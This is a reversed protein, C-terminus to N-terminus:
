RPVLAVRFGLLSLRIGAHNQMVPVFRCDKSDSVWCGGWNSVDSCWEWVNGSMDYLGLENAKKLGVPHTGGNSNLGYWAVDDPDDSGSCRYGESKRGGRAAYEWQIETPLTFEWGDPAKGMVNLKECFDMADKWSVMEVPLDTGEFYSPDTGMVAKWQAQTVETKALYFDQTSIIEDTNMVITGADVRVMEFSNGGPITVTIEASGDSIDVPKFCELAEKAGAHGREAAKHYWEVAKTFDAEVGDGFEYRIALKYKAEAGGLTAGVVLRNAWLVILPIVLVVTGVLIFTKRMKKRRLFIEYQRATIQDLINKQKPTGALRANSFLPDESLPKRCNALHMADTVGYAEMCKRLFEDSQAAEIQKLQEKREPSAYQLAFMFHEEESLPVSCAPLEAESAVHCSEMCEKLFFEAQDEQLKRLDKKRKPSACKMALKFNDDEALPWGTQILGAEGFVEKADMCKGLFYDSQKESIDRLEAQQEQPAARLAMRFLMSKSLPIPLAALEEVSYKKKLEDLFLDTQERQIQLLEKRGEPPAAQLAARFNEDDALPTKSTSLFRIDSIGNAIACKRLFFKIRAKQQIDELEKRREEPVIKLMAQFDNNKTLDAGQEALQSLDTIRFVDLCKKTHFRIQAEQQIDELEKRREEPALKMAMQFNKDNSLDQGSQMLADENPLQRIILCQLLYLEPNEPDSELLKECYSNAKDWDNMEMLMSIRKLLKDPEVAPASAFASAFEAPQKASTKKRKGGPSASPSSSASDAAPEPTKGELAAIFGSCSKFRKAPPKSMARIIAAQVYEPLSEIPDAEQTLVAQQLVAADTSDFPLRGALMEYTMVALAYQDAAAGQAKGRWQEPAMYPATGGTGQSVLSVRTMSTHIQAALGFDLVKVNGEVDIMITGPKIDRHIIKQKHAYDLAAAVQRIVPLVNELSLSGDRRMRKIWRRLDEGEVCEMILYYDGNSNDKELNRYIAINPHVLRSVLQFNEKVDEMELESRSLEPPLAKLAIVIGATEDFCKYVVGMGGQGLESLVKYRGLILDGAEFRGDSKRDRRGPMTVDNTEQRAHTQRPRITLDIDSSVSGDQGVTFKVGCACQYRGPECDYEANCSPCKVLM